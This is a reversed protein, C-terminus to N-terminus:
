AIVETRPLRYAGRGVKVVEGDDAMRRMTNQVNPLSTTVGRALLLPHLRSPSWLEGGAGTGMIQLVVDRMGIRGRSSHGTRSRGPSGAAVVNHTDKEIMEDLSLFLMSLEEHRTQERELREELADLKRSQRDLAEGVKDRAAELLRRHAADAKEEDARGAM